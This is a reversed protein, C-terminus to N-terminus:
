STERGMDPLRSFRLAGLGGPRFGAPRAPGQGRKNQGAMVLTAEPHTCRLQSLVEVAMLPNYVPHFSRMWFLRPALARRSRYPYAKVDIVNPIVHCDFGYPRIARGLYPSPAVLVTSRALVRHTWRPHSAMFVPMAGGHLIMVIRHAFRQGLFSAVDEVVFSAGGYVHIVLIDIEKRKRIITAAIDILRVYRNSSGSVAIVSYGAADFHASLRVGQTVVVATRRGALPGVFCLRPLEKPKETGGTREASRAFDMTM